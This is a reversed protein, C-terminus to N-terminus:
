GRAQKTVQYGCRRRRPTDQTKILKHTNASIDLVTDAKQITTTRQEDISIIADDKVSNTCVSSSQLKKGM